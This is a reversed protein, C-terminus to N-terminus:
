LKLNAKFLNEMKWESLGSTQNTLWFKKYLAHLVSEQRLNVLQFLYSYIELM